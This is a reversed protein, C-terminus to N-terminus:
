QVHADGDAHLLARVLQSLTYDVFHYQLVSAGLGPEYKDLMQTLEEREAAGPYGSLIIVPWSVEALGVSGKCRAPMLAVLARLARSGLHNADAADDYLAHAGHVYLVGNSARRIVM